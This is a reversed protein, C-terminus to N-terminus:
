IFSCKIFSCNEYEGITFLQIQFDIQEFAQDETISLINKNFPNGDSREPMRPPPIIVVFLAMQMKNWRVPNGDSRETMRPPPIIVM